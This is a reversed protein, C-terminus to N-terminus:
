KMKQWSKQVFNKMERNMNFMIFMKFVFAITIFLMILSYFAIPLSRSQLIQWFLLTVYPIGAFVLISVLILIKKSLKMERKLQKILLTMNSQSLQHVRCSSQRVYYLIRCYIIIAILLPIIYANLAALFGSSFVKTSCICLRSEIEFGSGKGVFVSPIPGIMSIFYNILILYRHVRWTLLYKYKSFVTFFLRSISQVTYSTCVATCVTTYLYARFRCAPQYILWDQQLGYGASIIQLISYLVTAAATNCTMLNNVTRCPRHLIFIFIMLWGISINILSVFISISFCVVYFRDSLM